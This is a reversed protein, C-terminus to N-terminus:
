ESEKEALAEAIELVPLLDNMFKILAGALLARVEKEVSLVSGATICKDALQWYEGIRGRLMQAIHAYGASVVVPGKASVVCRPCLAVFRENKGDSNIGLLAKSATLITGCEPCVFLGKVEEGVAIGEETKHYKKACEPCIVCACVMWVEDADPTFEPAVRVGCDTCYVSMREGVAVGEENRTGHFM